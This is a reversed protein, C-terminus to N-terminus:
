MESVTLVFLTYKSQASRNSIGGVIAGLGMSPHVFIYQIVRYLVGLFFMGALVGLIGFNGYFEVLQPLNYSTTEDDPSLFGYLHGFTQGSSERPKDPYLLRPIPKFLLPYLTGGGWFPIQAPTREIIEAFTM